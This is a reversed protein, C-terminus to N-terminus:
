APLMRLLSVMAQPDTCRIEVGRYSIEYAGAPVSAQEKFTVAAKATNAAKAAKHRTNVAYWVSERPIHKYRVLTNDMGHELWYQHIEDAMGRLLHRTKMPKEPDLQQM